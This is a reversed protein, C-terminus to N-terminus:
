IEELFKRAQIAALVIGNKGGGTSVWTNPYVREFYGDKFDKVYPRYGVHTEEVSTLRHKQARLLSDRKRVEEDFNRLKIATGDGFWVKEDEMQYSIAQKYPAWISLQPKHNRKNFVFSVGTIAEIAPMQPVLERAWIGTAVLIKGEYTNTASKAWGDGVEIINDVVHPTDITHKRSVYFLDIHKGLVVEPSIKQLGYLNDLEEYANVSEQGLRSVWSPKTINGSAKTGSNPRDADIVTNSVGNKTLLDSVVRGFLGNGIIYVVSM